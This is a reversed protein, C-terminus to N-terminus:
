HRAKWRSCCLQVATAIVLHGGVGLVNVVQGESFVCGWRQKFLPGLAM